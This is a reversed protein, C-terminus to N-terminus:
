ENLATIGEGNPGPERRAEANAISRKMNFRAQAARRAHQAALEAHISQAPDVTNAARERESQERELHFKLDNASSM